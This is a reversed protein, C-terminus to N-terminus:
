YAITYVIVGVIIIGCCVLGEKEHKLIYFEYFGLLLILVDKVYSTIYAAKGRIFKNREDNKEIRQQKEIQPNRARKIEGGGIALCCGFIGAAVSSLSTLEPKSSTLIEAAIFLVLGTAITVIGIIIKKKDKM